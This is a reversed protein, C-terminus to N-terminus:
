DGPIVPLLLHSPRDPGLHITTKGDFVESPRDDPDDHTMGGTGRTAYVFSQGYDDLGGTFEYDNGRIWM